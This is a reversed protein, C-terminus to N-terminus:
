DLLERSWRVDEFRDGLIECNPYVHRKFKSAVCEPGVVFVIKSRDSIHQGWNWFMLSFLAYLHQDEERLSSGVIIIRKCALLRDYAYQWIRKLTDTELTKLQTPPVIVPVNDEVFRWEESSGPMISSEFYGIDSGIMRLTGPDSKFNDQKPYWNISGHLKLLPIKSGQCVYSWDSERNCIKFAWECAVDWNLSLITDKSSLASLLPLYPSEKLQEHGDTMRTWMYNVLIQLLTRRRSKVMKDEKGIVTKALFDQYVDIRTLFYELGPEQQTDGRFAPFIAALFDYLEKKGEIGGWPEWNKKNAYAFMEQLLENALPLGLHRSAGAGLLVVTGEGLKSRTLSSMWDDLPM